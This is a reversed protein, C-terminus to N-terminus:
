RTAVPAWPVKKMAADLATGHFGNQDSVVEPYASPGAPNQKEILRVGLRKADPTAWTTDAQRAEVVPAEPGPIMVWAALAVCGRVSSLGIVRWRRLGM